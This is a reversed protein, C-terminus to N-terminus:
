SMYPILPFTIVYITMRDFIIKYILGVPRDHLDSQHFNYFRIKGIRRTKKGKMESCTMLYKAYECCLVYKYIDEV